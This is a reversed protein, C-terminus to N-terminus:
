DEYLIVKDDQLTQSLCTRIIHEMWFISSEPKLDPNVLAASTFYASAQEGNLIKSSSRFSKAKQVCLRVFTDFLISSSSTATTTGTIAAATVAPLEQGTAHKHGEQHPSHHDRNLNSSTKKWCRM